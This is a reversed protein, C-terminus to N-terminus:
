QASIQFPYEGVYINDLWVKTTYRGIPWGGATDFGIGGAALICSSWESKPEATGKNEILFQNDSDYYQIIYPIVADQKKYNKNNYIIETYIYRAQQLSFSNQYHRKNSPVGEKGGEYFKVEKVRLNDGEAITPRLTEGDLLSQLKEREAESLRTEYAVRIAEGLIGLLERIAQPNRQAMQLVIKADQQLDNQAYLDVDSMYKYKAATLAFAVAIDPYRLAWGALEIRLMIGDFNGLARQISETRSRKAFTTNILVSPAICVEILVILLLAHVLVQRRALKAIFLRVTKM